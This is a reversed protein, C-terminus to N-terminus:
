RGIRFVVVSEVEFEPDIVVGLLTRASIFPPPDLALPAPIITTRLFQGDRTFVDFISELRGPRPWRRVWITEDVAVQVDIFAPLVEPLRLSRVEDPVNRVDNLPVPVSEIRARLAALSDRREATPVAQPSVSRSIRGVLRDRLDTERLAYRTGDGSVVTGRPTIDWRPRPSFPTANLGEVMRGTGRNVMYYASATSSMTPYQPVELTDATWEGGHLRLYFHRHLSGDSRILTAPYYYSGDATIAAARSTSNGYGPLRWTARVSDPVAGAARPVLVTIRNIDRVYATDGRFRIDLPWRYEGPGDGERGLWTLFRGDPTYVRVSSGIRDAVYIRRRSDEAVATIDGFLYEEAGDISGIQVHPRALLTDPRQGAAPVTLLVTTAVAIVAIGTRVTV